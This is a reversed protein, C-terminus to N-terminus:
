AVQQRTFRVPVQNRDPSRDRGIVGDPRTYRDGENVGPAGPLVMQVTPGDIDRARPQYGQAPRAKGRAPHWRFPSAPTPGDAVVHFRIANHLMSALRAFLFM